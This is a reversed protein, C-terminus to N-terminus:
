SSINWFILSNEFRSHGLVFVRHDPPLSEVTSSSFYTVTGFFAWGALQLESRLVLMLLAWSKLSFWQILITPPPAMITVHWLWVVVAYHHKTKMEYFLLVFSLDPRISFTAGLSTWWLEYWKGLILNGLAGNDLANNKLRLQMLTLLCISISWWSSM